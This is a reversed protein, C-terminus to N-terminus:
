PIKTPYLVLQFMNYIGLLCYFHLSLVISDIIVSLQPIREQLGFLHLLTFILSFVKKNQEQNEKYQKLYSYIYGIVM